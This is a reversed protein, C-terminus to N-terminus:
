TGRGRLVEIHGGSRLAAIAAIRFAAGLTSSGGWGGGFLGTMSENTSMEVGDVDCGNLSVLGGLTSVGVGPDDAKGAM